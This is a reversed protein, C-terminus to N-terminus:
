FGPNCSLANREFARTLIPISRSRHRPHHRELRHQRLTSQRTSEPRPPTTSPSRADPNYPTIGVTQRISGRRITRITTGAPIDQHKLHHEVLVHEQDGDDYAKRKSVKESGPHYPAIVPPARAGPHVSPFGQWFGGDHARSSGATRVAGSDLRSAEM